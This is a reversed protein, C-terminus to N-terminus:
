MSMTSRTRPNGLHRGRIAEVLVNLGKVDADFWSSMVETRENQELPHDNEAGPKAVKELQSFILIKAEPSAHKASLM